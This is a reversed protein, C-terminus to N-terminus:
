MEKDLASRGSEQRRDRLIRRRLITGPYGTFNLSRNLCEFSCGPVGDVRGARYDLEDASTRVHRSDRRARGLSLSM